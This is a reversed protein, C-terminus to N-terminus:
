SFCLRICTGYGERSDIEINWDYRQCIRRVLSLGIGEGGPQESYYPEFVRQLSAHSIGVGTDKIEVYGSELTVDVHGKEIYSYANRVLNALVVRLLGCEVKLQPQEHIEFRVEVPKHELLYHHSQLIHALIEGVECATSTLQDERERALLLLAASLESAEKVARAIREVRKRQAAGIHGDALLVEAAGQIVALPTRLEHSVDSTFARERKIFESLRQLYDDFDRALEGVEDEPFDAALPPQLRAKPRLESVRRALEAVPSIVRGALWFGLLASLGMMILVGAVLYSSFQQERQRVQTDDYLVVFRQAAQERVEAYYNKNKFQVQHLGPQLQKLIGPDEDPLTSIVFTHMSTSTPPPAEPDLAYRRMFDELETTLTEAILREEMDLMLVYLGGAIVLSVITGLFAFAFAVRYRLSTRFKM